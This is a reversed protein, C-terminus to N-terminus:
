PGGDSRWRANVRRAPTPMVAWEPTLYVKGAHGTRGVRTTAGTVLRGATELENLRACVSQTLLGTADVVEERTAGRSGCSRVHQFVRARATGMKGALDEAAAESTPTPNSPLSDRWPKGCRRCRHDGEHGTVLECRCMEGVSQRCATPSQMRCSPFMDGNM